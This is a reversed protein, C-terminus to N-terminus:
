RLDAILSGGSSPALFNLKLEVTTMGMGEELLAYVAWFSAADVLSSYVGGHVIGFNQLHKRQVAVKLRSIGPGIDNISMSLLTFYPNSNVQRAAAEIYAPNLRKM